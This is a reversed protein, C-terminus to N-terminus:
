FRFGVTFNLTWGGLDIKDGLFGIEPDLDGEAKQWRLEGGIPVADAVTARVGFLIIPGVTAGSDKFTARFINDEFDVFEGTETYRWNFIGIGAGIYPEIAGRGAPLFRVTASVPIVRLKLEQFIETGDIDELFEYVSPVTEQQYAAGAGVEIHDTVGFLWEGGFQFNKRFDDVDFLLAERGATRNAVIVDGDDRADVDHGFFGGLSVNVLQRTDSGSIRVVQADAPVPLFLLTLVTALGCRVINLWIRTTM